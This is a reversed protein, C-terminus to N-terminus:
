RARLEIHMETEEQPIINNIEPYTGASESIIKYKHGPTLVLIFSGSNDPRYIGQVLRNDEDVVTIIIEEQTDTKIEGKVIVYDSVSGSVFNKLFYIDYDGFGDKRRSAYWAVDTGPDIIFHLDNDVSNIPYGLNEPASWSGDAQLESKFIDYGGMNYHGASSFYLTSGDPSFQPAIEDYASNVTPGLNVPLSWNGGPLLICRYLDKGGFGGQMNSSFVIMQMDPSFCASNVWAGKENINTGYPVPDSWSNGNFKSILLQGSVLDPNTRYIVAETHDPSICVLADHLVSNFLNNAPVPEKWKKQAKGTVFIDEFPDGYPDREPKNNVPRRSTFYFVSDDGFPMPLYDAYASNVPQGANVPSASVPTRIMERAVVSKDLLRNVEARNMEINQSSLYTIFYSIAKEFDMKEHALLALYYNAEHENDKLAEEFYKESNAHEARLYFKCIGLGLAADGWKTQDYVRQYLNMAVPFNLRGLEDEAEVLLERAEPKSLKQGQSEATSFGFFLLLVIKIFWYRLM